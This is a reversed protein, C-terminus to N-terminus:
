NHKFYGAKRLNRLQCLTNDVQRETLSKNIREELFKTFEIRNVNFIAISNQTIEPNKTTKYDNFIKILLGKRVPYRLSLRHRDTIGDYISFFGRKRLNEIRGFVKDAEIDNIIVKRTKVHYMILFKSRFNSFVIIKDISIWSGKRNESNFDEYIERFIQDNEEM